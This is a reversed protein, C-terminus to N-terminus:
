LIRDGACSKLFQDSIERFFPIFYKGLVSLVDAAALPLPYGDRPSQVPVGVQDQQVLGKRFQVLRRFAPQQLMESLQRLAAFQDNQDRM